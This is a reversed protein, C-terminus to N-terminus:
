YSDLDRGYALPGDYGAARVEALMEQPTAGWGLQHYLVLIGPAARNALEALETTSTHSQAHYTQWVDPRTLFREASYVEHVLVDCGSCLEVVADSPTGDGSIVISRDATDFRYAFAEPWGTHPVDAATVRVREDEYVVGADVDSADIRWGDPTAPERGSLRMEIDAGFAATLHEAMEETGDPGYLRFPVERELVWTTFVLDPLGVTHDSHLHTLFAIDLNPPRLAASEFREAAAAARRVVGPGTDVIYAKGDVVVATAPGSADPDANPTGTGLLVVHTGISLDVGPGEAALAIAESRARVMAEGPEEGRPLDASSVLALLVTSGAGLAVWEATGTHHEEAFSHRLGRVTLALGLIPGILSIARWVMGLDRGFPIDMAVVASSANPGILWVIVWAIAPALALVM